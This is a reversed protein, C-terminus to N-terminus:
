KLKILKELNFIGENVTARFNEFERMLSENKSLVKIKYILKKEAKTDTLYEVAEAIARKHFKRLATRYHIKHSDAYEKLTIVVYEM